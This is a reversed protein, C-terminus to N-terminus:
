KERKWIEMDEISKTEPIGVSEGGRKAMKDALENYKDGTHAEVKSFRIDIRSMWGRMAMAYSRTLDNKSKWAGTVWCEIGAYDYYIQIAKYGSKIASLVANMAGLMEGTVNRQKANEPDNGSGCLVRVTGDEPLFVCGFSYIGTEVNFSGDVYATIIKNDSVAM